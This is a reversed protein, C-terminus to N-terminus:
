KASRNELRFRLEALAHEKVDFFGCGVGQASSRDSEGDGVVLLKLKPDNRRVMDSIVEKLGSFKYLWGMFFMLTEDDKVRYQNRIKMGSTHRNFRKYNVGAGIVGIACSNADLSDVYNKLAKNITLILKSRAITKKEVMKGIWRLPAVPILEHLVDIWYYVFPVGTRSAWYSNLIGLGIIVDPNFERIQRDIEKKHTWLMSIYDLVPFKIIGPRIVDVRAGNYIKNVNNFVQRGSWLGIGHNIEYDIVRIKHGRLSMLEALHHQQHMNRKLWDSEQVILIKM